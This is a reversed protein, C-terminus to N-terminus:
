HVLDAIDELTGAKFAELAENIDNMAVVFVQKGGEQMSVYAGQGMGGAVIVQCDTIAELMRSHRNQSAPSLGHPGDARERGADEGSFHKHGMKERLSRSTEEDNEIGVVLYYQARGFHKSITKGDDTVFAINM